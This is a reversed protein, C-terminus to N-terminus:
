LAARAVVWWAAWCCVWEGDRQDAKWVALWGDWDRERPEAKSDVRLEARQGDKPSEWQDAWCPEKPEAWSQERRVARQFDRWVAWWSDWYDAWKWEM